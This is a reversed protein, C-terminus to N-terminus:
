GSAFEPNSRAAASAYNTGLRSAWYVGELPALWFGLQVDAAGEM